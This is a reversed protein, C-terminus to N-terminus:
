YRTRCSATSSIPINGRKEIVRGRITETTTKVPETAADREKLRELLKAKNIKARRHIRENQRRYRTYHDAKRCRPCRVPTKKHDRTPFDEGCDICKVLIYKGTQQSM